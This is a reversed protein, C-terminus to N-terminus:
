IHWGVGTDVHRISCTEILEEYGEPLYSEQWSDGFRLKVADLDNWVSVFMVTNEGGQICQGFFYGRNGPQGDVVKASTTAFSELLEKVHGDKVRVEFIRLVPGGNPM